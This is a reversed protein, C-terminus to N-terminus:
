PEKLRVGNFGEVKGKHTLQERWKKKFNHPMESYTIGIASLMEEMSLGQYGRMMAGLIRFVINDGSCIATDTEPLMFLQALTEQEGGHLADLFQSGFQSAFEMLQKISLDFRTVSGSDIFPQLSCSCWQDNDDPYGREVEEIVTGALHVEYKAIVQDWFGWQILRTVVGADLLLLRPKPM